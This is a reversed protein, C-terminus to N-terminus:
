RIQLSPSKESPENNNVESPQRKVHSIQQSEWPITNVLLRLCLWWIYVSYLSMAEDDQVLGHAIDNRFNPGVPDTLLAKLEFHLDKGLVDKAKPNELLTGLGNETVIGTSDLTTTKEHEQKLLVRVVHEVQPVLLHIAAAFDSEFGHYLGRAWLVERGVPLLCSKKCLGLLLSETIHHQLSIAHFAPLVAAKAILGIRFCHQRVMHEWVVQQYEAGHPNSPDVSPSRCAVRGDRTFHTSTCIYPLISNKLETKAAKRSDEEKVMPTVYALAILVDHFPKDSVQKKSAEIISSIDIGPTEVVQMECLSAVNSKDMALRLDNIREDVKYKPRVKKPIKRYEKIACSYLQGAVMNSDSSRTKAELAYTEAIEVILRHVSEQDHLVVHCAIAEEIYSRAMDLGHKSKSRDAFAELKTSIHTAEQSNINALCLLEALRAARFGEEFTASSFATYLTARLTELLGLGSAGIMVALRIAREFANKSDHCMSVIDSPFQSYNKIAVVAYKVDKPKKSMWLVDALRANLLCNDIQGLMSGLLVLDDSTFDGLIATRTSGFDALPKFPNQISAPSLMMSCADSLVRLRKGKTLEQAEEAKTAAFSLASHYAFYTQHKAADLITSIETFDADDSIEKHKEHSEM